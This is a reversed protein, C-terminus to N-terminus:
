AYKSFGKPKKIGVASFADAREYWIFGSMFSENTVPKHKDSIKNKM